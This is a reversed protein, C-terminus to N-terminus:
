KEDMKLYKRVIARVKQFRDSDKTVPGIMDKTEEDIKSIRSSTVPHTSLLKDAWGPEKAQLAKMKIFFEKMGRPDIGADYVMDLGTDDAESEMNRSYKLLTMTGGVNIFWAATDKAQRNENGVQTLGLAFSLGYYATLQRAGHKRSVHAIEHGIVGALESETEALAILGLNVYLWGGPLAFANVEKTDVVHFKYRISQRKSHSAIKKGLDEIYNVVVTDQYLTIQSEIERSTEAGIEVERSTPIVNFKSITSCGTMGIACALFLMKAINRYKM